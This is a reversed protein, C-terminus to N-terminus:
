RNKRTVANFPLFLTFVSGHLRPDNSSRVAIAGRHRDVIEKSVWLGLGTGTASKTTFFPKFIRALIEPGMGVGTDAMTLVVGREGTRWHTAERSRILIRRREPGMAELANCFLNSIVQRIEGDFCNVCATARDRREIVVGTNIARGQYVTLISDILSAAAVAQPSSAQKHFRLTQSTIASVRRLEREATLLFDRVDSFNDSTQALYLLNTLAELPNNIEHAISSALRGLVALKESDILAAEAKRQATVELSAATIARISGDAAYVPFYSVNWYRYNDPDTALAGELPYNIVPEGRAVQEFLERLGEIPAMETLTKGVVDEPKLGFFAAQRDNLRLYRFDKTDFLALGIPATRYLTEIEVRQREAEESKLRLAEQDARQQTVDRFFLIIGDESPQVLVSFWANLPEPYFADFSGGVAQDMARNYFEVYPSEPYITHPFMEWFNKGVITGSPELLRSASQNLYTILWNRDIALTGDSIAAQVQHLTRAIADRQQEATVEGTVDHLHGFLGAIKGNEFITNFSYNLFAVRVGDSTPLPVRFKEYFLTEGTAYANELLPGVTPWSEVYVERAPKGLAWPHRPGPFSRYADNYILILDPGWMTRAPSPSALTLNVITLLEKSWSEIPGLPTSAWDYARVLSAMEGSGIIRSSKSPTTM